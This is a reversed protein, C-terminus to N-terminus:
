YRKVKKSQKSTFNNYDLELYFTEKIDQGTLPDQGRQEHIKMKYVDENPNPNYKQEFFLRVRQKDADSMKNSRDHILAQWEPQQQQQDNNFDADGDGDDDGDDEGDDDPRQPPKFTSTVPGDEETAGPREEADDDPEDDEQKVKKSLGRQAAELIRKRKSARSSIQQQQQQQGDTTNHQTALSLAEQADIMKMKSTKAAMMAARGKGAFRGVVRAANNATATTTNGATTGGTAAAVASPTVAAVSSAAATRQKMNTGKVLAQAVGGKRRMLLSKAAATPKNKVSTNFLSSSKKPMFMSSKGTVAATAGAGITRKPANVLKTPRFGPPLNAGNSSSSSSATVAAAAMNTQIKGTIGALGAVGTGGHQEEEKAKDEEFKWDVQLIDASENIHFHCNSQGINQDIINSSSSATADKLSRKVKFEPIITNLIHTSILSYRYPAFSANLDEQHQQHQQEQLTNERVKECIEEAQQEIIQKAETGRCSERTNHKSDRFM